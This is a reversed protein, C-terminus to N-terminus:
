GRGLSEFLREYLGLVRPAAFYASLRRTSWDDRLNGGSWGEYLVEIARAVDEPSGGDAALGGGHEALLDALTSPRPSVALIPRGAQAYDAIKSPLCFGEAMPAEIVVLVTERSMEAMAQPYPLPPSISIVSSLRLSSILAAAEAGPDGLFHASVPRAPRARKLFLSLGELFCRPSRPAKLSGIHALTFANPDRPPLDLIDRKLAIHPVVSSKGALDPGLLLSMYRRLKESPFTHWSAEAAVAMLFRRLSKEKFAKLPRPGDLHIDPGRGYPPPAIELPAPDNWNAIWPVRTERAIVLAPLHAYEPLARSLIFDYQNRGMLKRAEAVASAAWANGFLPHLGPFLRKSRGRGLIDRPAARRPTDLISVRGDLDAWFTRDEPYWLPERPQRSVVDLDWGARLGALALKANVIAEPSSAPLMYPAFMLVRPRKRLPREEFSISATM